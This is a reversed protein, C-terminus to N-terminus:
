AAAAPSTALAYRRVAEFVGLYVWTSALSNGFFPLARVYCDILGEQTHAYMGSAWWVELNTTFYFTLAGVFGTAAWGWVSARPRRGLFVLALLTLYVVWMGDHFGLWADGLFASLVPTLLALPAPLVFGAFLGVALLATFNPPHPLWRTFVGVLVLLAFWLWSKINNM